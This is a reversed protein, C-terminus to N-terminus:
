INRFKRKVLDVNTHGAMHLLWIMASFLIVHKLWGHSDGWYNGVVNSNWGSVGPVLSACPRFVKVFVELHYAQIKEKETTTRWLVYVDCRLEKNYSYQYCATWHHEKLNNIVSIDTGSYTCDLTCKSKNMLISAVECLCWNHNVLTTTLRLAKQPLNDESM